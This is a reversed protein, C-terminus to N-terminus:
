LYWGFGLGLLLNGRYKVDTHIGAYRLSADLRFSTGQYLEYGTAAIMGFGTEKAILDVSGGYVGIATVTGQAEGHGIGGKLWFRDVPWWQVAAAAVGQVVSTTAVGSAAVDSRGVAVAHTDLMLAVRPTLMRGIRMEMGFAPSSSCDTCNSNLPQGGVPGIGVMWGDTWSKEDTAARGPTEMKAVGPSAPVQAFAPATWLVVSVAALVIWRTRM